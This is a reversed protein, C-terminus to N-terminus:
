RFEKGCLTADRASRLAQATSQLMLTPQHETITQPDFWLIRLGDTGVISGIDGVIEARFHHTVVHLRRYANVTETVLWPNEQSPRLTMGFDDLFSRQLAEALKEGFRVQGDPLHWKWYPAHATLLVMGDSRMVLASVLLVPVDGNAEM